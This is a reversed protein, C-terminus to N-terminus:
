PTRRWPAPLAVTYMLHLAVFCLGLVVLDVSGVHVHFLDLVFCIFAIVAFM